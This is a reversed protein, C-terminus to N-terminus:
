VYPIRPTPIFNEICVCVYARMCAHVSARVRTFVCMRWPDYVQRRPISWLDPEETIQQSLRNVFHLKGLPRDYDQMSMRRNLQM